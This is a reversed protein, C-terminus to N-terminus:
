ASSEPMPDCCGCAAPAETAGESLAPVPHDPCFFDVPLALRGPGKTRPAGARASWGAPAEIGLRGRAAPFTAAAGAAGCGPAACHVALPSKSVAEPRGLYHAIHGELDLVTASSRDFGARVTASDDDTLTPVLCSLPYDGEFQLRDHEGQTLRDLEGALRDTSGVAGGALGELAQLAPAFRADLSRVDASIRDLHEFCTSMAVRRASPLLDAEFRQGHVARYQKLLRLGEAVEGPRPVRGSRLGIATEALREILQEAVENERALEELPDRVEVATM